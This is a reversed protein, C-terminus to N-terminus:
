GVRGRRAENGVRVCVHPARSVRSHVVKRLASTLDVTCYQCSEPETDDRRPKAPYLILRVAIPLTGRQWPRHSNRLSVAEGSSYLKGHLTEGNQQCLTTRALSAGGISGKGGLTAPNLDGPTPIYIANRSKRRPVIARAISAPVQSLVTAPLTHRRRLPLSSYRTKATKCIGHKGAAAPVRKAAVVKRNINAFAIGGGVGGFLNRLRFCVCVCM